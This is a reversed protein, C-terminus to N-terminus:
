FSSTSTEGVLLGYLLERLRVARLPKTLMDALNNRTNVKNISFEGNETCEALYMVKISYHKNRARKGQVADISPQNDAYMVTTLVVSSDVLQMCEKVLRQAYRLTESAEVM